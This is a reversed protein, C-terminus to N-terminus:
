RSDDLSNNPTVVCEIQQWEVYRGNDFHVLWRAAVQEASTICCTLSRVRQVTGSLGDVHGRKVRVWEGPRFPPIRTIQQRGPHKTVPSRAMRRELVQHSLHPERPKTKM